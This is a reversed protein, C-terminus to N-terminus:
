DAEWARTGTAPSSSVDLYDVLATSAFMTFSWTKTNNLPLLYQATFLVFRQATIEQYYYGPLTLPFESAM